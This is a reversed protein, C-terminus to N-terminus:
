FLFSYRVMSIVEIWSTENPDNWDHVVAILDRHKASDQRIDLKAMCIGFTNIQRITDLLFWDAYDEYDNCKLAEHLIYVPEVLDDTSTFIRDPETYQMRDM